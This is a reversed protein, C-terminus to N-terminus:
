RTGKKGSTAPQETESRAVFEEVRLVTPPANSQVRSADHAIENIRFRRGDIKLLVGTAVIAAPLDLDGIHEPDALTWGSAPPITLIRVMM